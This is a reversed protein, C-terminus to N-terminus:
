SDYKQSFGRHCLNERESEVFREFAKGVALMPVDLYHENLVKLMRSSVETFYDGSSSKSVAIM